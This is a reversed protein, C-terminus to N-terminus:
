KYVGKKNLFSWGLKEAFFCMNGVDNDHGFVSAAKIVAGNVHRRGSGKKRFNPQRLAM